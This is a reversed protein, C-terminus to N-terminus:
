HKEFTEIDQKILDYIENFLDQTFGLVFAHLIDVVKLTCNPVLEHFKHAIEENGYRDFKGYIMRLKQENQNMFELFEPKYDHIFDGEDKTLLLMQLTVEPTLNQAICKVYQSPVDSVIKFFLILLFLPIINFLYTLYAFTNILIRNFSLVKYELPFCSYLNQLAPFLCYISVIRSSDKMRQLANLTIYNGISHMLIIYHGSPNEQFLHEFFHQKLEIARELSYDSSNEECLSSIIVPYNFAEIFKTAFEEYLEAVSPNGPVIIFTLPSSNNRNSFLCPQGEIIERTFEVSSSM